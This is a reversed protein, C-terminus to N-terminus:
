LRIVEEDAPLPVSAPAGFPDALYGTHSLACMVANTAPTSIPQDRVYLTVITRIGFASASVFDVDPDYDEYLADIEVLTQRATAIMDSRVKDLDLGPRVDVTLEYGHACKGERRFFVSGNVMGNPIIVLNNFTDRLVTERWTIDVVEGRRGDVELNDGVKYVEHYLISFGAVVNTITDQLGVSACVSGVGLAAIIATINVNFIAPIIYSAALLWIIFSAVTPIYTSRAISSNKLWRKLLLHVVREILTAVVIVILVYVLNFPLNEVWEGFSVPTGEVADATATAEDALLTVVRGGM